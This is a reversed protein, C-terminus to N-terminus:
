LTAEQSLPLTFWFLAGGGPRNAVGVRGGQGEVIAKVVSLGLGVGYQAKDSGRHVFRSFVDPQYEAPIGPGEDAVMVRLSNEEVQASVYIPADDPGYKSANSILNLLVQGTRRADAQVLPLDPPLDIELRQGHKELLPRMVRATEQVIQGLGASRPFVRFRGTEISAAELLNDVLTQLGLTGLHLSNLLELLEAPSLDPLQDLLLEISAALASLPTRFEHAINALFNGLLRHVAEEDSVDRLVLATQARGAEPPALRAGTISVTVPRGDRRALNVRQRGGPTPALDRFRVGGNVPRFVEDELQGIVEASQWGTIQEAGQSFFTIRGAQDVTVIGEVIGELLHDVWAKEQRLQNLTHHLAARADELAYAALAVEQVNSGVAVPTTLDGQSLAAAAQGLQALPQGIRRALLVGLVSGVTAVVLIGGALVWTLRQETVVLEEVSLAVQATVPSPGVTPLPWELAYYSQAEVQFTRRNPNRQVLEGDTLRATEGAFSSALSRNEQWLTYDLGTQGTIQRAFGDDLAVGVLVFGLAGDGTDGVPQRALLAATQGDAYLIPPEPVVGAQAACLDDAVAAGARGILTGDPRCVLIVDLDAGTRLTELYAPLASSEGQAILQQLTPRQGTLIALDALENQQAVFLSQVARGGQAVQAWAQRDLQGRILWIAPLGVAAATLFVLAIFALILQARLSNLQIPFRKTSIHNVLHHNHWLSPSRTLRPLYPQPNVCLQGCDYSKASMSLKGTGNVRKIPRSLALASILSTSATV